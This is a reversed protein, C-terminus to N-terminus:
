GVIKISSSHLLDGVSVAAIGDTEIRLAQIGQYHFDAVVGIIRTATAVLTSWASSRKENTFGLERVMTENM